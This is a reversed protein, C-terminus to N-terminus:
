PTSIAKDITPQTATHRQGSVTFRGACGWRLRWCRLTGALTRDANTGAATAQTAPESSNASSVDSSGAITPATVPTDLRAAIPSRTNKTNAADSAPWTSCRVNDSAALSGQDQTDSITPAPNSAIAIAASEKVTRKQPARTAPSPCPPMKAALMALIVSALGCSRFASTVAVSKTTM